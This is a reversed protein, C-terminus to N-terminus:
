SPDGAAEREKFRRILEEDSLGLNEIMVKADAAFPHEPFHNIVQQYAQRAEGKRGLDTDIVFAKLYLVDPLKHWSPHDRLIRDYLTISQEPDGMTRCVSAARFLYEPVLTDRQFTLAYRKYVDVLARAQRVDYTHSDFLSDEMAKIRVRSEYVDPTGAKKEGAGGGCGALCWVLALLAPVRVLSSGFMSRM